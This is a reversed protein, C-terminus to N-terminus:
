DQFQRPCSLACGTGLTPRPGGGQKSKEVATKLVAPLLLSTPQQRQQGPLSWTIWDKKSLLAWPATSSSLQSKGPGKPNQLAGDKGWREEEVGVHLWRLPDPQSIHQWGFVSM